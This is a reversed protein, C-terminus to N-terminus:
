DSDSLESIIVDHQSWHISSQSEQSRKAGTFRSPRRIVFRATIDGPCGSWAVLIQWRVSRIFEMEDCLVKRSMLVVNYRYTSAIKQCSFGYAPFVFEKILDRQQSNGTFLLTSIRKSRSLVNNWKALSESVVLFPGKWNSVAVLSEFVACVVALDEGLGDIEIASAGNVLKEMLMKCKERQAQSMKLLSETHSPVERINLEADAQVASALSNWYREVAVLQDDIVPVGWFYNAKMMVSEFLYEFEFDENKRHCLVRFESQADECADGHCGASVDVLTEPHSPYLGFIFIARDVPTMLPSLMLSSQHTKESNLHGCLAKALEGGCRM